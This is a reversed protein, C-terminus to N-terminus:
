SIINVTAEFNKTTIRKYICNVKILPRPFIHFVFEFASFQKGKSAILNTKDLMLSVGQATSSAAENRLM